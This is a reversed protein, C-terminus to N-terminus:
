PSSRHEVPLLEDGSSLLALRPKRYVLPLAEGLMALLGIEQARLRMGASLVKDGARLDDGRRRINSGAEIAKQATVMGPAPTDHGRSSFDTDEVMVVAGTGPPLPAGTMVRASQGPLIPTQIYEGARIDAIVKLTHLSALDAAPLAFGDVSSNDFLPLDTRATIDAALVRGAARDLPVRQSDVPSFAQLIRDRAETVSLM